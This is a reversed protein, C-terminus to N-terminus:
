AAEKMRRARDAERMWGIYTIVERAGIAQALELIRPAQHPCLFALNCLDDVLVLYKEPELRITSAAVAIPTGLIPHPLSLEAYEGRPAINKM